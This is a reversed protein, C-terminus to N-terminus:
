RNGIDIISPYLLQRIFKLALERYLLLIRNRLIPMECLQMASPGTHHCEVMAGPGRLNEGICDTFLRITSQAM